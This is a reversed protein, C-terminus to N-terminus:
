GITSRLADDLVDDMRRCFESPLFSRSARAANASMRAHLDENAVLAETHRILDAVTAWRYGSVGYDVTEAPGGADFVVPVAGASMAEVITQGFHEHFEPNDAYAMGYGTAHWYISARGYLDELARRTANRHIQVADDGALRILDDIYGTVEPSDVASGVLHLEWGARRLQVSSRFAEILIDQRKYPHFRAVHLIIREKVGAPVPSCPTYVPVASRSWRSAIHRATFVSNATVVAYSDLGDGPQNPVPFMCMYIGVSAPSAIMSGFSANVFVDLNLSALDHSEPEIVMTEVNGLDVSFYRELEALDLDEASILVVRHGRSAWHGALVLSRKEGGGRQAFELNYLGITLRKDNRSL